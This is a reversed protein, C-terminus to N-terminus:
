EPDSKAQNKRSSIYQLMEKKKPPKLEPPLPLEALTCVLAWSGFWKRIFEGGVVEKMRPTQGLEAACKRVYDLIQEDTDQAHEAAWVADRDKREAKEQKAISAEIENQAARQAKADAKEQKWLKAQVKLEDRYIKRGTPAPTKGCPALGAETLVKAWSGFRYAIFPGGIVEDKHPTHGLERACVAVYNLLQFKSDNEHEQAFQANKLKLAANTRMELQQNVWEQADFYKAKEKNSLDLKRWWFSMIHRDEYITPDDQIRRTWLDKRLM